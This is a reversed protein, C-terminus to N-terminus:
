HVSLYCTPLFFCRIFVASIIMITLLQCSPYQAIVNLLQNISPSKNSRGGIRGQRGVPGGRSMSPGGGNSGMMGGPPMQKQQMMHGSQQPYKMQQMGSQSSGMSDTCFACLKTLFRPHM